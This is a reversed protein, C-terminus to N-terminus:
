SGEKTEASEVESDYNVGDMHFLVSTVPRSVGKGVWREAKM